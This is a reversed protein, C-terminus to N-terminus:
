GGHRGCIQAAILEGAHRHGTANWHGEGLKTNAFGHLFTGSDRAIAQLSPALSLVKFGRQQGAAAIRRDPYFIDTIRNSAMFASIVGADPHVQIGNSLTVVLFGAGRAAVEAHMGALLATTVTWAEDWAPGADDRYVALDLGEESGAATAPPRGRQRLERRAQRILQPLRWARLARGYTTQSRALAQQFDSDDRFSDDLVLNGAEDVSFFPRKGDPELARSNNRVDNGTLFALLVLDPAYDWARERLTLLQQATGFGAVGFNIVEVTAPGFARCDNLRRELVSWFAQPQDVELAAAYSDGLVAIRYVGTPKALAHERDRLGASNIHVRGHGEHTYTFDLLPQHFSGTVADPVYLKPNAFGTARLVLEALLLAVGISGTVLLLSTALQRRTRTM